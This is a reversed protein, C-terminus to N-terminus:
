CSAAEEVFTIHMPHLVPYEWDKLTVCDGYDNCWIYGASNACEIANGNAYRESEEVGDCDYFMTPEVECDDFMFQKGRKQIKVSAMKFGDVKEIAQLIDQARVNGGYKFRNECNFDKIIQNAIEAQASPLCPEQEGIIELAIIVREAPQYRYRYCVGGDIHTDEKDGTFEYAGAPIGSYLAEAIAGDPISQGQKNQVILMTESGYIAKAFAVNEAQMVATVPDGNRVNNKDLNAIVARAENETMGSLDVGFRSGHLAALWNANATRYDFQNQLNELQLYVESLAGAFGAYIQVLPDSANADADMLANPSPLVGSSELAVAMDRLIENQKKVEILM